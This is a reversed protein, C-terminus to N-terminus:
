AFLEFKSVIRFAAHFHHFKLSASLKGLLLGAKIASVSTLFCSVLYHMIMQIVPEKNVILMRALRITQLHHEQSLISPDVEM